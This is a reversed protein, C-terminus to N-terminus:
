GLDAVISVAWAELRKGGGVGGWQGRGTEAELGLWDQVVGARM